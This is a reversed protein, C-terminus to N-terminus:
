PGHTRAPRLRGGAGDLAHRAVRNRNRCCRPRASPRPVDRVGGRLRPRGGRRPCAPGPQARCARVRPLAMRLVPSLLAYLPPLVVAGPLDWIAYAHGIGAQEQRHVLEVVTSCALLIAAVRLQGAQVRTTAAFACVAGCYIIVVVVQFSWRPVDRVLLATASCALAPAAPHGASGEGRGFHLEQRHDSVDLIAQVAPRTALTSPQGKTCAPEGRQQPPWWSVAAVVSSVLAWASASLGLGARGSLAPATQLSCSAIFRHSLTDICARCNNCSLTARGRDGLRRNGPDRGSICTGICM